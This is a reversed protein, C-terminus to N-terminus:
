ILLNMLCKATRVWILREAATSEMNKGRVSGSAPVSDQINKSGQKGRKVNMQRQRAMLPPLKELGLSLDGARAM